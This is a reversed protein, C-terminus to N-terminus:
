CPALRTLRTRSLVLISPVMECSMSRSAVQDSLSRFYRTLSSSRNAIAWSSPKWFYLALRVAFIVRGTLLEFVVGACAFDIASATDFGSGGNLLVM